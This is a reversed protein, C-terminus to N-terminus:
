GDSGTVRFSDCKQGAPMDVRRAVVSLLAGAAPGQQWLFTSRDRVHVVRHVVTGAEAGDLLQWLILLAGMLRGRAQVPSLMYAKSWVCTAPNFRPCWMAGSREVVVHQAPDADDWSVLAVPSAFDTALVGDIQRREAGSHSCEAWCCVEVNNALKPHSLITMFLKQAESESIQRKVPGIDFAM